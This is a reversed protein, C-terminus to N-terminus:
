ADESILFGITGGLNSDTDIIKLYYTGPNLTGRWERIRPRGIEICSPEAIPFGENDLVETCFDEEYLAISANSTYASDTTADDWQIIVDKKAYLALKYWAGQNEFEITKLTDVEPADVYLRGSISLFM